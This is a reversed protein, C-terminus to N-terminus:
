NDYEDYIIKPLDIDDPINSQDYLEEFKDYLHDRQKKNLGDEWTLDSKKREVAEEFLDYLRDKLEDVLYRDAVEEFIRNVNIGKLKNNITKPQEM